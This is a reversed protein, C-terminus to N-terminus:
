PAEFISPKRRHQINDLMRLARRETETHAEADQHLQRGLMENTGAANQLQARLVRGPIIGQLTVCHSPRYVGEISKTPEYEDTCAACTVAMILLAMFVIARSLRSQPHRNPDKMVAKMESPYYGSAM